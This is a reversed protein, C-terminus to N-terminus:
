ATTVVIAGTYSAGPTIATPNGDVTMSVRKGRRGTVTSTADISLATLYSTGTRHDQVSGLLRRNRVPLRWKRM